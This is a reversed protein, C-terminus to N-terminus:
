APPLARGPSRPFEFLGLWEDVEPFPLDSAVLRVGRAQLEAWAAPGDADGEETYIWAWLEVGLELAARAVEDSVSTLDARLGVADMGVEAASLITKIADSTTNQEVMLAAPFLGLQEDQKAARLLELSFSTITCQEPAVGSATVAKGIPGLDEVGGKIEVLCRKGKTSVVLELIHELLPVPDGDPQMRVLSVDAGTLESLRTQQIRSYESESVDKYAPIWPLSTRKMTEDHLVVAVGDKTCLVDFEAGECVDFAASVAAKTNEAISLQTRGRHGVMFMTRQPLVGKEALIFDDSGQSFELDISFRCHRLTLRKLFPHHNTTWGM